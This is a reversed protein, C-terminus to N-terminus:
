VRTFKAACLWGTKKLLKIIFRNALFLETINLLMVGYSVIGAAVFKTTGDVTDKIFLAGGSDGQCTDKGGAIEGACIQSNWNKLTGPSVSACSSSSYINM